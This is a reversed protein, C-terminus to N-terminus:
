DTGNHLHTKPAVFVYFECKNITIEAIRFHARSMRITKNNILLEGYCLSDLIIFERCM